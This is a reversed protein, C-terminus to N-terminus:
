RTFNTENERYRFELQAEDNAKATDLYQHEKTTCLLRQYGERTRVYIEKSIILEQIYELWKQEFEGANVVLKKYFSVDALEVGDETEFTNHANIHSQKQNGILRLNDFTGFSNRFTMYIDKPSNSVIEYYRLESLQVYNFPEEGVDELRNFIQVRYAVITKAVLELNEEFAEYFLRKVSIASVDFCYLNKAPNEILLADFYQQTDDEFTVAIRVCLNALEDDFNNLFYLFEEDQDTTKKNAPQHTLFKAVPNTLFGINQKRKGLGAGLLIPYDETNESQEQYFRFTLFQVAEPYAEFHNVFSPLELSSDPLLKEIDFFKYSSSSFESVLTVLKGGNLSIDAKIKNQNNFGAHTIIINNRGLLVDYRTM